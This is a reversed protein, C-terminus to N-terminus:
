TFHSKFRLHALIQDKNQTHIFNSQSLLIEKAQRV